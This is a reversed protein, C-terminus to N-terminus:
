YTSKGSSVPASPAAKLNEETKKKKQKAASLDTAKAAALAPASGIAMFAPPILLALAALTMIAVRM